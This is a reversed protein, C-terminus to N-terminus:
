RAEVRASLPLRLDFEFGDPAFVPRAVGGLQQALGRELLRMGFGTREPPGALPPGGRERWAIDLAAPAGDAAREVSWGVRVRGGPVSLAGHRAANAALEHFAMHLAVAAGPVLRVAPGSAEVRGSAGDHHPALTEGVVEALAAGRWGERTLLDHARALAMLRAEFAHLFAGPSAGGRATQAALAQAGALANKVRHNLENLLLKQRQEAERQDTVDQALGAARHVRGAGDLIPFGTDRIWRVAGDFARRIRYEAEVREGRLVRPLVDRMAHRDEPHLLQAWRRIDSVVAGRPEGWVQEFAPSVYELKEGAADVIWLVDPSTEAFGRFRAESERLASEARRADEVDTCTGYWLAPAAARPWGEDRPRKREPQARTAFWRYAGSTARLRHEVRLEGATDAKGWAAMTADRDDPHVRELWGLGSAESPTMGTYEVWRRNAWTWMGGGASTWVLHPVADTAARFRTESEALATTGDAVRRELAGNLRVLAENAEELGLTSAQLEEMAVRLGEATAAGAEHGPAARAEADALRARLAAMEADRRDLETRAQRLAEALADRERAAAAASARADAAAALAQEVRKPLEPELAHNSGLEDLDRAKTKM